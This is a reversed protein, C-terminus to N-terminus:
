VVESPTQILAEAVEVRQTLESLLDQVEGSTASPAISIEEGATPNHVTSVVETSPTTDIFQQSLQEGEAAQTM